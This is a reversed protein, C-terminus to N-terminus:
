GKQYTQLDEKWDQSLAARIAQFAQCAGGGEPPQNNDETAM